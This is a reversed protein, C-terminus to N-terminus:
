KAPYFALLEKMAQEAQESAIAMWFVKRGSQVYFHMQGTGNLLYVDRSQFQFVGMPSFPSGGADIKATMKQILELAQADSETEAVWLTASKQGYEAMIGSVLPFDVGHLQKLSAIGEAGTQTQVLGFGAVSRPVDVEAKVTGPSLRLHWAFFLAGSLLIVGVFLLLYPLFKKM